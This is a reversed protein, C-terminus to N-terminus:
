TVVLAGLASIINWRIASQAVLRVSNGPGTSAISGTAGANSLTSGYRIIQSTNPHISFGGAGDLTVEIIQGITPNLPLTLSLNGGAICFYGNSVALNTNTSITQWTFPTSVLQVFGEASVTFDRSSFHSVGNLAANAVSSVSSRQIEITYTNASLSNTRIVNATTGAAVQGGTITTIGSANPLVPDTGPATSADVNFGLVPGSGGTSLLVWIAQNNVIDVLAWLNKPARNTWFSTIPYYGQQEKPKNDLLTPDRPRIYTPAFRYDQGSYKLSNRYSDSSNGATM